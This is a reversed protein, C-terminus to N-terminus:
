RALRRLRLRADIVSPIQSDPNDWYSLFKRYEKIARSTWNSREYALGLLYHLKVRTQVNLPNIMFRLGDNIQELREVALDLQGDELYAQAILLSSVAGDTKEAHKLYSVAEAAKGNGLATAMKLAWYMANSSDSLTEASEPSLKDVSPEGGCGALYWLYANEPSSGFPHGLTAEQRNFELVEHEADACEGLEMLIQGKMYAAAALVYRAARTTDNKRSAILRDLSQNADTLHGQLVQIETPGLVGSMAVGPDSSKALAAFQKRALDLQRRDMYIVALAQRSQYFDPNIRVAREFAKLASDVKGARLLLDGKTDYPNAEDPVLAVYKNLAWEMGETDGAQAYTYALMNYAPSYDPDIALVRNFNSLAKRVNHRQFEIQGLLQLTEKDDPYYQLAKEFESVAGDIDGSWQAQRARIYFEGRRGANAAYKEAKAICDARQQGRSTVALNYWAM